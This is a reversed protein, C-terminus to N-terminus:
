FTLLDFGPKKKLAIDSIEYLKIISITDQNKVLYVTKLKRTTRASNALDGHRNGSRSTLGYSIGAFITNPNSM